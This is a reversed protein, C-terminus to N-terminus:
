NLIKSKAIVDCIKNWEDTNMFNSEYNNLQKLLNNLDRDLEESQRITTITKNRALKIFEKQFKFLFETSIKYYHINKKMLFNLKDLNHNSSWKFSNFTAEGQNFIEQIMKYDEVEYADFFLTFNNNLTLFWEYDKTMMAIYLRKLNAFANVENIGAEIEVTKKPNIFTNVKGILSDLLDVNTDAWTAIKNLSLIRNSYDQNGVFRKFVNICPILTEEQSVFKTNQLYFDLFSIVNNRLEEKPYKNLWEDIDKANEIKLVDVQLNNSILELGIKKTANIGADDKDLALTVRKAIRQIKRLHNASFNTGMLGIVNKFDNQWLTMADMYGEVVICSKKSQIFDKANNLNFLVDSKNFVITESINLYKPEESPTQIIRGGFAVPNNLEDFIPIMLRKNFFPVLHNSKEVAIGSLLIHIDEYGNKKLFNIVDEGDLYGVDFDEITTDNYNRNEIYKQVEQNTSLSYKAFDVVKQNIELILKQEDSWNKSSYVDRIDIGLNFEDSIKKVAQNYSIKEINMVFKIANGSAGCSFCKYINKQPSVVMSPNSDQHFPCLGVYNNGNKKLPVYKNIIDVISIESIKKNVM